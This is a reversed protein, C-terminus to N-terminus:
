GTSPPCECSRRLKHFKKRWVQSEHHADDKQQESVKLKDKLLKVQNELDAIRRSDSNESIVPDAETCYPSGSASPSEKQSSLPTLLGGIEIAGQNGAPHSVSSGVSNCQPTLKPPTTPLYETETRRRKPEPPQSDDPLSPPPVHTHKMEENEPDPRCKKQHSRLNDRRSFSSNCGANRCKHLIIGHVKKIHADLKKQNTFSELCQFKSYDKCIKTKLKRSIRPKRIGASQQAGVPDAASHEANTSDSNEVEVPPLASTNASLLHQSPAGGELPPSPNSPDVQSEPSVEAPNAYNPSDVQGSTELHGEPTSTPYKLFFDFDGPEMDGLEMDRSLLEEFSDFMDCPQTAM